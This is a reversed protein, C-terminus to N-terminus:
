TEMVHLMFISDWGFVGGHLVPTTNKVANYAAISIVSIYHMKVHRRRCYDRRIMITQPKEVEVNFYEISTSISYGYASQNWSVILIWWYGINKRTRSDRKSGCSSSPAYKKGQHTWIIREFNLNTHIVLLWRKKFHFHNEWECTVKNRLWLSVLSHEFLFDM